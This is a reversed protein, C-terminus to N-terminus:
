VSKSFSLGCHTDQVCSQDLDDLKVFACSFKIRILSDSFDGFDKADGNESSITLACLVMQWTVFNHNFANRTNLGM